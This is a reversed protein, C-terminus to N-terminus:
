LPLSPFRAGAVLRVTDGGGGWLATAERWQYLCWVKVCCPAPSPTGSHAELSLCLWNTLLFSPSLIKRGVAEMLKNIPFRDSKREGVPLQGLADQQVVLWINAFSMM